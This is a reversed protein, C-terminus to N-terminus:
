GDRIGLFYKSLKSNFLLGLGERGNGAIIDNSTQDCVKVRPGLFIGVHKVMSLQLQFFHKIM